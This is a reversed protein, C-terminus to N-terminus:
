VIYLSNSKKPATPDGTIKRPPKVMPAADMNPVPADESIEKIMEAITTPFATPDKTTTNLPLETQVADGVLVPADAMFITAVVVGEPLQKL